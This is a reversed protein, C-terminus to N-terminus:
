SEDRLQNVLALHPKQAGPKPIFLPVGNRLRPPAQPELAQRALESIVQGATMGRQRALQRAVQLVDEDLNLTTRMPVLM